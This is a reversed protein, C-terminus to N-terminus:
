SAAKEVKAIFDDFGAVADAGIMYRYEIPRESV